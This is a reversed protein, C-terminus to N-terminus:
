ELAVDKLLLILRLINKLVETIKIIKWENSQTLNRITTHRNWWADWLIKNQLIAATIFPVYINMVIRDENATTPKLM